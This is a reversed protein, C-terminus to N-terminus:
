EAELYYIYDEYKKGDAGARYVSRSLINKGYKNRLDWIRAALRKGGHIERCADDNIEGHEKLYEWIKTIQSDPRM